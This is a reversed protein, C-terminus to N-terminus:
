LPANSARTRLPSPPPPHVAVPAPPLPQPPTLPTMRARDIALALESASQFRHAPDRSLNAAVAM